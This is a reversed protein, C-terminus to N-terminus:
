GQEWYGREGYHRYVQSELIRNVWPSPGYEPSSAIKECTLNATLNQDAWIVSEIWRPPLLVKRGPLWNLVEVVIYRIAWGEGDLILDDFHGADSDTARVGYGVVDRV